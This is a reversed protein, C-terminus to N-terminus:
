VVDGRALRDFHAEQQEPSMEDLPKPSVSSGAGKGGSSDVGLGIKSKLLHPHDKCFKDLIAAGGDDSGEVQEIISSAVVEPDICGRAALRKQLNQLKSQRTLEADKQKLERVTDALEGVSYSEGDITITGTTDAQGSGEAKGRGAIVRRVAGTVAQNMKTELRSEIGLLQAESIILNEAEGEGANQSGDNGGADKRDSM